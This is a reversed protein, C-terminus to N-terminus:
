SADAGHSSSLPELVRRALDLTRAYHNSLAHAAAEPDRDMAAEFLAQHESHADREGGEPAARALARYRESQEFLTRQIRMMWALGCGSLLSEHFAFHLDAWSGDHPSAQRALAYPVQRLADWAGRVRAEWERDGERVAHRLALTEIEIRTRTLDELDQLDLPTVRFGRQDESQVFGDAVLRSLAERVASLSVDFRKALVAIPLKEGPPLRCTLIDARLSAHVASTLSRVPAMPATIGTSRHPTPGQM